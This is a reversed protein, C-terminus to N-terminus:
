SSRKMPKWSATDIEEYISDTKSSDALPDFEILEYYNPLPASENTGKQYPNNPSEKPLPVVTPTLPSAAPFLPGNTHASVPDTLIPVTPLVPTEHQVLPSFPTSAPVRPFFPPVAQMAPPFTTPYAANDYLPRPPLIPLQNQGGYPFPTNVAEKLELLDMQPYMFIKSREYTPPPQEMIGSDFIHAQQQNVSPVSAPLAAAPPPYGNSQNQIKPMQDLDLEILESSPASPQNMGTVNQDQHNKTMQNNRNRLFRTHRLFINNLDDNVQVLEIIVDENQVIELLQLIRAQMERCVKELEQLLEMDQQLEAGPTNEILIESMVRLNMKVMDLESYLKGIQESSLQQMSTDTFSPTTTRDCIVKKVGKQMETTTEESADLSPFHIGKKIMELYLEKVETVDVNGHSQMSWRMIFRLIRNQMEIPLNYKPNLLKVLVDKCFEKRLVLSQFTPNCNQMCMELLEKQNYNKSIRKKLAKVADRSGDASTNIVDCINMFQGWDESKNTSITHIEAHRTWFQLPQMRQERPVAKPHHVKGQLRPPAWPSSVKRNHQRLSTPPSQAFRSAAAPLYSPLAHLVPSNPVLATHLM